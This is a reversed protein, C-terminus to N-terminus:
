QPWLRGNQNDIITLEVLSHGKFRDYCNKSTIQTKLLKIPGSSETPNYEMNLIDGVNLQNFASSDQRVLICANSGVQVDEIDPLENKKFAIFLSDLFMCLCLIASIVSVVFLINFLVEM